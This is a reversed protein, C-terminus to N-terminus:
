RKGKNHFAREAPKDNFSDVPDTARAPSRGDVETNKRYRVREVEVIEEIRGAVGELTRCGDFPFIPTSTNNCQRGKGRKVDWIGSDRCDDRHSDRRCIEFERLLRRTPDASEVPPRRHRAIGEQIQRRGEFEGNTVLYGIAHFTEIKVGLRRLRHLYVKLASTAFDPGGDEEDGWLYDALDEASVIRNRGTGIHLRAFVKSTQYDGGLAKLFAKTTVRHCVGDGHNKSLGSNQARLQSYTIM